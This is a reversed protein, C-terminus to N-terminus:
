PLNRAPGCDPPTGHSDNSSVLYPDQATGVNVWGCKNANGYAYGWAWGNNIYQANFHEDRVLTGIVEGIPAKRVYVSQAAVKNYGVQAALATAAAAAGLVAIACLVAIWKTKM